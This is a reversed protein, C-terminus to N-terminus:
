RCSQCKKEYFRCSSCSSPEVHVTGKSLSCKKDDDYYTYGVCESDNKCRENCGIIGYPDFTLYMYSGLGQTSPGHDHFSVDVCAETYM